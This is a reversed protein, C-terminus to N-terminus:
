VELGELSVKQTLKGNFSDLKVEYEHARASQFTDAQVIRDDVWAERKDLWGVLVDETESLFLLKYRIEKEGTTKDKLTTPECSILTLKKKM